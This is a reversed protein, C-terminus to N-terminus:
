SVCLKIVGGIEKVITAPAFIELLSDRISLQAAIDKKHAIEYEFDKETMISEAKQIKFSDSSSYEDNLSM